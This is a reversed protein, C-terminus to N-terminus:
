PDIKYVYISYGPRAIPARDRFEAFFDRYEAPLYLGTLLNASIAYLGPQTRLRTQGEAFKANWPIPLRGIEEDKFFRYPNDLGWYALKLPKGGNATLYERLEPLSQGWDVNSDALYRLGNEPGGAAENFYALGTDHHRISILTLWLGLVAVVIGGRREILLAAGAGAAIALFPYCPLALRVGLQMASASIAVFYIGFGAALFVTAAKRRVLSFCGTLALASFALPLKVALGALFYRWDGRPAFQGLFYVPLEGGGGIFLSVAGEWMPWSLPIYTFVQGAGLFWGPVIGSYQERLHALLWSSLRRIELPTAAMSLLWSPVLVALTHAGIRIRRLAALAAAIPVLILLSLKSLVAVALALGLVLANRLTAEQWFRWACFWFLLHGFAAALDNKFLGSHARFGPELALVTMAAFGAFPSFLQRGWFWVFVLIGAPFVLLSARPWFFVKRCFEKDTLKDMLLVAQNWEHREDGAHGLDPALPLTYLFRTPWGGIIRILAPMDRPPLTRGGHWYVHASVLHSPEDATIGGNWARDLVSLCFLTLM